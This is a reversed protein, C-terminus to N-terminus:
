KFINNYNYPLRQHYFDYIKLWNDVYEIPCVFQHQPVIEQQRYHYRGTLESYYLSLCCDTLNSRDIIVCRDIIDNQLFPKIDLTHFNIALLKFVGQDLKQAWTYPDM